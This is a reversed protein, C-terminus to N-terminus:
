GTHFRADMTEMHMSFAATFRALRLPFGHCGASRTAMKIRLVAAFMETRIGVPVEAIQRGEINCIVAFGAIRHNRRTQFRETINFTLRQHNVHATIVM